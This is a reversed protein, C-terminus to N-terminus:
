SSLGTGRADEEAVRQMCASSSSASVWASRRTSIRARRPVLVVM